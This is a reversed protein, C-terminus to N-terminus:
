PAIKQAAIRRLLAAQRKGPDGGKVPETAEPVVLPGQAHGAGDRLLYSEARMSILAIRREIKNEAYIKWSPTFATNADQLALRARLQHRM